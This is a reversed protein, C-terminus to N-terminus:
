QRPALESITLDNDACWQRLAAYLADQQFRYWREVLGTREILERLRGYAKPKRSATFAEDYLKPAHAQIFNPRLSIGLDLERESPILIYKDNESVDDPFDEDRQDDASDYFIEGTERNVYATNEVGGGVSVYMVASELENLDVMPENSLVLVRQIEHGCHNRWLLQIAV